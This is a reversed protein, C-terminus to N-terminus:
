ADEDILRSMAGLTERAERADRLLADVEPSSAHAARRSAEAEAEGVAAAEAAAANERRRLTARLRAIEQRATFLEEANARLRRTAERADAEAVARQRRCEALEASALCSIAARRSAVSAVSAGEAGKGEGADESEAGVSEAGVAEAGVSEAGERGYAVRARELQRLADDRAREIERAADARAAEAADAARAADLEAACKAERAEEAAEEAARLAAVARRRDRRETEVDAEADRLRAALNADSADRERLSAVVDSLQRVHADFTERWSARADM